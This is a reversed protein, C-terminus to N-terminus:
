PGILADSPDAGGQLRREILKALDETATQLETLQELTLQDLPVNGMSDRLRAFTAALQSESLRDPTSTM